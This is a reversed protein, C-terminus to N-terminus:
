CGRCGPPGGFCGGSIWQCFLGCKYHGGRGTGGRPQGWGKQAGMGGLARNKERQRAVVRGWQARNRGIGEWPGCAFGGGGAEPWDCLAKGVGPVRCRGACVWAPGKRDRKQTKLVPTKEDGKGAPRGAQGHGAPAADPSDLDPGRVVRMGGTWGGACREASGVGLAGAPDASQGSQRVSGHLHSSAIATLKTPSRAARSAVGCVSRHVESSEWPRECGVVVIARDAGRWRAGGDVGLVCLVCGSVRASWREIRAPSVRSWARRGATGRPGDPAGDASTGGGGAQQNM